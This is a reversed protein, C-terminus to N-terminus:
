RRCSSTTNMMKRGCPSTPVSCAFNVRTRAPKVQLNILGSRVVGRRPFWRCCIRSPLCAHANSVQHARVVPASPRPGGESARRPPDARPRHGLPERRRHAPPDRGPAARRLPRALGSQRLDGGHLPRFRRPRHRPSSIRQGLAPTRVAGARSRTDRRVRGQLAIRIWFEWDEGYALAPFSAAPRACRRPACWCTGAMPSCTACWCGNSSTASHRAHPRTAQTSSHIHAAPPSRPRRPTSPMPLDPCRTRRWGTTPTSSSSPM